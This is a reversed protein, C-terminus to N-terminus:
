RFNQGIKQFLRNEFRIFPKEGPARDVPLEKIQVNGGVLRPATYLRHRRKISM